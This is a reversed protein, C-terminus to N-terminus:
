PCWAHWGYDLSESLCKCCRGPLEYQTSPPCTLPPWCSALCAIHGCCQLPLYLCPRRGPASVVYWLDTTYESPTKWGTGQLLVIQPRTREDQAALYNHLETHADQSLGGINYSAIRLRAPPSQLSARDAHPGAGRPNLIIYRQGLTRLSCWRGRYYTGQYPSAAARQVARKYARKCSRAPCCTGAGRCVPVPAAAAQLSSQSCLLFSVRGLFRWLTPLGHGATTQVLRGATTPHPQLLLLPLSPALPGVHLWHVVRTVYHVAPVEIATLAPACAPVEVMLLLTFCSLPTCITHHSRPAFLGPKGARDVTYTALCCLQYSLSPIWCEVRPELSTVCSLMEHTVYHAIRRCYLTLLSVDGNTGGQGSKPGPAAVSLYSLPPSSGGYRRWPTRRPPTPHAQWLHVAVAFTRSFACVLARAAPRLLPVLLFTSCSRDFPGVTLPADEADYKGRTGLVVDFGLLRCDNVM